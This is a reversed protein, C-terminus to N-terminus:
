KLCLEGGSYNEISKKVKKLWRGITPQSVGTIKSIERQTLGAMTLEVALKENEDLQSLFDKYMINFDEDYEKPASVTDILKIEEGDMDIPKDLSSINKISMYMLAQNAIRETCGAIEMIKEVTVESEDVKEIALKAVIEKCSRPFKIMNGNDRFYRLIEGNIIKTAYTSFACIEPNYNKAAKILGISGIQVLDNKDIGYNKMLNGKNGHYKNVIHYVLRINGEVTIDKKETSM